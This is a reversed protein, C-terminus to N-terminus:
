GTAFLTDGSDQGVERSSADLKIIDLPKEHFNILM